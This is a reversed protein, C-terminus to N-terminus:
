RNRLPGLDKHRESRHAHANGFGVKGRIGPYAPTEVTHERRAVTCHQLGKRM